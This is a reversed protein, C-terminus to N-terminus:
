QLRHGSHHLAAQNTVPGAIITQGSAARTVQRGDFWTSWRGDLVGKIPIQYGV